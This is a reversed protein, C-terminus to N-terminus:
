FNSPNNPINNAGRVNTGGADSDEKKMKEREQQAYFLFKLQADTLEEVFVERKHTHGCCDCSTVEKSFSYGKNHASLLLQGLETRAFGACTM